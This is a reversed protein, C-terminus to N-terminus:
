LLDIFLNVNPSWYILGAYRDMYGLKTNANYKARGEEAIAQGIRKMLDVDFTAAMGIAQPFVTAKGNRAIGHLCENWWSYKKIDLRPIAPAEFM